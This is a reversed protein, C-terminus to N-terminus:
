KMFHLHWFILPALRNHGAGLDTKSMGSASEINTEGSEIKVVHSLLKVYQSLFQQSVVYSRFVQLSFLFSKNEQHSQLIVHYM